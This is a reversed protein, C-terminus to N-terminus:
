KVILNQNQLWIYRCILSPKKRPKWVGDLKIKYLKNTWKRKNGKCNVKNLKTKIDYFLFQFISTM